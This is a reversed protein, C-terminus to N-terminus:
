LYKKDERNVRRQHCGHHRAKPHQHVAPADRPAMAGRAGQVIPQEYGMRLRENAYKTQVLMTKLDLKRPSQRRTLNQNLSSFAKAEGQVPGTSKMKQSPDRGGM